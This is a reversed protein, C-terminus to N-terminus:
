RAQGNLKQDLFAKADEVRIVIRKGLKLYPLKGSRMWTRVTWPNLGLREAFTEITMMQPIDRLPDSM